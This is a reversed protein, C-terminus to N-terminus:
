IEAGGRGPALQEEADLSASRAHPSRLRAPVARDVRDRAIRLEQLAIDRNIPLLPCQETKALIELLLSQRRNQGIANVSAALSALIRM